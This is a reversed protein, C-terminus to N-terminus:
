GLVFVEALASGGVKHSWKGSAQSDSIVYASFHNLDLPAQDGAAQAALSPCPEGLVM